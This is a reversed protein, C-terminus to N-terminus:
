KLFYGIVQAGIAIVAVGVILVWNAQRNTEKITEVGEKFVKDKAERLEKEFVHVNDRMSQAITNLAMSNITEVKTQLADVEQNVQERTETLVDRFLAVQQDLNQPLDGISEDIAALKKDLEDVSLKIEQKIRENATEPLKELLMRLLNELEYGQELLGNMFFARLEPNDQLAELAKMADLGKLPSEKIEIESM